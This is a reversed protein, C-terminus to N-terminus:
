SDNKSAKCSAQQATRVSLGTAESLDTMQQHQVQNSRGDVVVGVVSLLHPLKSISVAISLMSLYIIRVAYGIRREKFIVRIM